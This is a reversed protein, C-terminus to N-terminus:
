DDVTLVVKGVTENGELRVHAAAVDALPFVRDVVPRVVGRALLPVVERAFARTALIKEELSRARLVTGRITLRKRLVQALDLVGERGAVTGVEIMRGRMGLASVSAAVYPGGVLDIVVDVGAGDTWERARQVLPALEASVTLGDELGLARARDLKSETRTSGYPVAGLARALQVVALGVGSGVAHVLVREEPRLAAGAVLADHATIYAEPVAAAQVWDLTDPVRAVAREHVVVYAAHAGGAVIGFVRDGATWASVRAGLEVVEGAFELGPIDQPAGPPAPYRGQRQLLDARNLSTARVRVLIEDEGPRPRPVERLALVEPGGAATLVVARMLPARTAHQQGMALEGTM